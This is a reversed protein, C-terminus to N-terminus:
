RTLPPDDSDKKNTTNIEKGTQPNRGKRKASEIEKGTQPNRGTRTADLVNANQNGVELGQDVPAALSGRNSRTSNHDGASMQVTGSKQKEPEKPAKKTGSASVTAMYLLSFLLVLIFKSKYM